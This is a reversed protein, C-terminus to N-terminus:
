EDEVLDGELERLIQRLGSFSRKLLYVKASPIRTVAGISEADGARYLPVGLRRCEIVLKGWARKSLGETAWVLGIQGRKALSYLRDKGCVAQRRGLGVRVRQALQSTEM